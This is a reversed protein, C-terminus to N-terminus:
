ALLLLGAGFVIAALFAGWLNSRLQDPGTLRRVQMNWVTVIPVVALVAVLVLPQWRMFSAWAPMWTRPPGQWLIEV